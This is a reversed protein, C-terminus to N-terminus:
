LYQQQTDSQDGNVSKVNFVTTKARCQPTVTPHRDQMQASALKVGLQVAIAPFGQVLKEYESGRGSLLIQQRCCSPSLCSSSSSKAYIALNVAHFSM